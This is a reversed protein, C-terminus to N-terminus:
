RWSRRELGLVRKQTTVFALYDGLAIKAGALWRAEHDEIYAGLIAAPQILQRAGESSNDNGGLDNAIAAIITKTRRSVATRGDLEDSSRVSLSIRLINRLMSVVGHTAVRKM